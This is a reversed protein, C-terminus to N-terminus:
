QKLIDFKYVTTHHYTQGPNLVPSPFHVKNPSDPFFQSEMCFGGHKVIPKGYKGIQTGDLFNGTYFQLGPKTTFVKLIRGSTPETVEAAIGLENRELNNLVFNHDYGGMVRDIEKGISKSTLFDMPTSKVSLIEGTPILTEDVPTYFDANIYVEHGLVHQMENADNGVSNLNFYTHNTLNIVTTKDTWAKYEIILENKDTLSYDVQIDVNGPYASSDESSHYTLRLKEYPDGDIIESFWLVKDFSERSGGHLHHVGNNVTLNYERGNLDFKANGIRNAYRGVLVGFYSTNKNLLEKFSGYGIVIDGSKGHKDLTHISVVTGGYDTIKVITGNTNKLTFLSVKRGDPMTGFDERSINSPESGKNSHGTLTMMCLMIALFLRQRLEKHASKFGMDIM